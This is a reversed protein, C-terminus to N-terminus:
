YIMFLVIILMIVNSICLYYGITIDDDLFLQENKIKDKMNKLKKILITCLIILLTLIISLITVGEGTFVAMIMLLILISLAYSNKAKNKLTLTDVILLICIVVLYMVYRYISNIDIICLYIIYVLLITLSYYIVGKEIKKNEKDIGAILFISILYLIIFVLQIFLNIDLTNIDLNIALAILVFILGSLFEFVFYKLGIKQKCHKCKGGLFIYSFIPILEWFGLKNKCNPCFSHTKVIDIKKPIRYVALSCFSGFLIGIIFITIYLIINM